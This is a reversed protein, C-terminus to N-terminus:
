PKQYVKLSVLFWRSFNTGQQERPASFITEIKATHAVYADDPKTWDVAGEIVAALTQEHVDFSHAGFNVEFEKGDSGPSLDIFTAVLNQRATPSIKASILKLKRNENLDKVEVREAATLTFCYMMLVISIIRM